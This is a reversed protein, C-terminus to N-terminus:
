DVEEKEKEKIRARDAAYHLTVPLRRKLERRFKMLEAPTMEKTAKQLEDILRPDKTM